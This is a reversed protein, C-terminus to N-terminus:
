VELGVSRMLELANSKRVVGSRLHFDFTIEGDELQDEFHVNELRPALEDAIKALALDHTTVLGLAGRDVLGRVVAEAGIRRDHSNTGHLIEDLLFLVPLSGGTLEVVQHLRKIEAYFRSIGEQLSDNVQISAAVTFPSLRLRRARVPAGALALLANVGVTRLLTSKGSMNSGSVVLGRRDGGLVLDNRVCREAPILPHGLDGGEFVPEGEAIEPFPDDPHEYAYASLACLAEIEGAATLWRELHPGCEARWAEVALALQTGWLLLAGIPAFFQNRRADLLDVLRRLQAIRRSPSVHDTELETRLRVLLPASVPERELRELLDALIALDRTPGEVGRIVPAIRRRLRLAFGSQAGIAVLAPLLGADTFIWLALAGLSVSVLLAAVARLRPSPAAPEAGWRLMAVPNLRSRVDEGLLWLDERLDLRGRLEDVAAQRARVVDAAAPTRLWDALTRQGVPTRATCLLEFLSGEGFLDLDAAYPHAPDCFDEGREGTGSWRDEIRAIGREYFDARRQAERHRRILRDHVIVLALFLVVIPALWGAALVRSGFALWAVGAGAVFVALRAHSIWRERVGWRRAASEAVELRHAYESRPENM